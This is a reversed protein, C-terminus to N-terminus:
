LCSHQVHSGAEVTAIEFFTRIIGAVCKYCCHAPQPALTTLHGPAAAGLLCLISPAMRTGQPHTSAIEWAMIGRICRLENGELGKHSGCLEERPKWHDVLLATESREAVFQQYRGNNSHLVSSHICGVLTNDVAALSCSDLHCPQTVHRTLQKMVHWCPLQLLELQQLKDSEAELHTAMEM